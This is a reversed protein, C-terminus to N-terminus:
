FAKLQRPLPKGVQEEPRQHHRMFLPEKEEALLQTRAQHTPRTPAPHLSNKRGENLLCQNSM